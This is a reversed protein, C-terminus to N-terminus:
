IIESNGLIELFRQCKLILSFGLALMQILIHSIKLELKYQEYQLLRSPEWVSINWLTNLIGYGTQIYSKSYMSRQITGALKM